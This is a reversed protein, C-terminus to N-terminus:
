RVPLDDPGIGTLIAADRWRQIECGNQLSFTTDVPGDRYTGTVVATDPGGFIMTCASDQPVEAFPDDATALGACADDPAPHDAEIVTGQAACRLGFTEQDTGDGPDYVVTLDALMDTAVGTGADTAVDGVVADGDAEDGGDTACAVAVALVSAVSTARLLRRVDV